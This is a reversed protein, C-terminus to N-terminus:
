ALCIWYLPASQEQLRQTSHLLQRMSWFCRHSVFFREPSVSESASVAPCHDAGDSNADSDADFNAAEVNNTDQVCNLPFVITSDNQKNAGSDNAVFSNVNITVAAPNEELFAQRIEEVNGLEECIEEESKGNEMGEKFHNEYDGLIDKVLEEDMGAFVTRLQAFFESKKM